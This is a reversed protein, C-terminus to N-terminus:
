YELIDIKLYELTSSWARLCEYLTDVAANGRGGVRETFLSTFLKTVNGCISRLALLEFELLAAGPLISEQLNPRRPYTLRSRTKRRKMGKAMALMAYMYRGLSEREVPSDSALDQKWRINSSLPIGRDGRAM